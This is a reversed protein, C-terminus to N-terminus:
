HVRDLEKRTLLFLGLGTILILSVLCGSGWSFLVASLPITHGQAIYGLVPPPRLGSTLWIATRIVYGAIHKASTADGWALDHAVTRFFVSSIAVLYLVLSVFAAVPLTFPTALTLGLATVIALHLMMLCLGRLINGAISSDRCLLRIGRADLPCILHPTDTGEFSVTLRGAGPVASAPIAIRGSQYPFGSFAQRTQSDPNESNGFTWIGTIARNRSEAFFTCRLVLNRHTVEPPLEFTWSKSGNPPLLQERRRIERQIEERVDSENQDEAVFGEQQRRAFETQVERDLDM